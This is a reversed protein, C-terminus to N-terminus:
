PALWVTSSAVTTVLFVLPVCEKMCLTMKSGSVFSQIIQQQEKGVKGERRKKELILATSQRENVSSLIATFM